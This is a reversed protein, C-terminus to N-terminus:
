DFNQFFKVYEGPVYKKIFEMLPTYNIIGGEDSAAKELNVSISMKTGKHVFATLNSLDVKVTLDAVCAIVSGTIEGPNFKYEHEPIIGKTDANEVAKVEPAVTPLITKDDHIAAKYASEKVADVKAAAAVASRGAQIEEVAAKVDGEADKTATTFTDEPMAFVKDLDPRKNGIFYAPFATVTGLGAGTVLASAVPSGQRQQPEANIANISM